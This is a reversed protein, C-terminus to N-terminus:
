KKIGIKKYNEWSQMRYKSNILKQQKQLSEWLIQGPEVCKHRKTFRKMCKCCVTCGSWPKSM